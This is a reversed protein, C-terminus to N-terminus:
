SREEVGEGLEVEVAAVDMADAAGRRIGAFWLRGTILGRLGLGLDCGPSQCWSSPMGTLVVGAPLLV